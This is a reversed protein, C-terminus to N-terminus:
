KWVPNFMHEVAMKSWPEMRETYEAWHIKHRPVWMGNEINAAELKLTATSDLRCIGLLGLHVREVPRIRDVLFAVFDPSRKPTVNIEEVVERVAEMRLFNRLSDNGQEGDVHGGLGISWAAHLRDEAGGGGRQYMFIEDSDNLVVVYPLIQLQSEDTECVARDQMTTVAGYFEPPIPRIYKGSAMEHPKLGAFDAADLASICLARRVPKVNQTADM